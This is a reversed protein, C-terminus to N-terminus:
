VCLKGGSNGAQLSILQGLAIGGDNPPVDRHCIPNFGAAQLQAIASETLVKNQFVGGSLAVRQLGTRQAASVIMAALTNHVM